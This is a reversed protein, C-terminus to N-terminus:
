DAMQEAIGNRGHRSWFEKLLKRVRKAPLSYFGKGFLCGDLALKIEREALWPKGCQEYLSVLLELTELQRHDGPEGGLRQAARLAVEAWYIEGNDRCWKAVDLCRTWSDYHEALSRINRQHDAPEQLSAEEISDVLSQLREAQGTAQAWALEGLRSELRRPLPHDEGLTDWAMQLVTRYIALMEETRDADHYLRAAAHLWRERRDWDGGPTLKGEAAHLHLLAENMRGAELAQEGLALEQDFDLGLAVQQTVAAHWQDEALDEIEAYDGRSQEVLELNGM